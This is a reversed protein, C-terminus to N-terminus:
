KRRMILQTATQPGGYSIVEVTRHRHKINCQITSGITDVIILFSEENFINYSAMCLFKVM